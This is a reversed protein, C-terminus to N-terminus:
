LPLITLQLCTQKNFVYRCCMSFRHIFGILIQTCLFLFVPTYCCHVDSTIVAQVTTCATTYAIPWTLPLPRNEVRWLESVGQGIKM